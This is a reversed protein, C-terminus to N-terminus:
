WFLAYLAATSAMVIVSGIVFASGPVFDGATWQYAQAVDQRRQTLLSVLVMVMALILTVYGMRHMFPMTVFSFKFVTSFPISLLAVSLAGKANARQWFFGLLFIVCVGPSIFGTYEQVYQIAQELHGLQPALLVAILMAVVISVRGMGILNADNAQPSIFRKYLDLTFITGISNAKGALSAV